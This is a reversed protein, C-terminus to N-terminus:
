LQATKLSPFYSYHLMRIVLLIIQGNLLWSESSLAFTMSTRALPPPLSPPLGRTTPSFLDLRAVDGESEPLYSILGNM